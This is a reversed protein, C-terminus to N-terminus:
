KIKYTVSIKSVFQNEGEPVVPASAVDSGGMGSKEMAYMPESPPTDNSYDYFSVVSEIQVGLNKAIKQANEEADAIAQERLEKKISEDDDVFFTLQSVNDLDASNVVGLVDSVKELDRMIVEVRQSVRYGEFRQVGDNYSYEPSIEYNVTKIDKEEVGNKALEGVLTNMRENVSKTAVDTSINKSTVGFSVKATDPKVFTEAKGDVSITHELSSQNMDVTINKGAFIMYAVCIVIAILCINTITTSKIDM